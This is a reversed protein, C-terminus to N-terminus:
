HELWAYKKNWVFAPYAALLLDCLSLPRPVIISIDSPLNAAHKMARCPRNTYVAEFTLSVSLLPLRTGRICRVDQRTLVHHLPYSCSFVLTNSLSNLSITSSKHFSSCPFWAAIAAFVISCDCSALDLGSPGMNWHFHSPPWARTRITKVETAGTNFRSSTICGSRMDLISSSVDIDQPFRPIRASGISEFIFTVKPEPSTTWLWSVCVMGM